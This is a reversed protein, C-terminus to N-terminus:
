RTATEKSDQMHINTIFQLLKDKSKVKNITNNFSYTKEKTTRLEIIFEKSMSKMVDFANSYYAELISDYIPQLNRRNKKPTLDM